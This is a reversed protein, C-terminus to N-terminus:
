PSSVASHSGSSASRERPKVPASKSSKAVRAAAVPAIVCNACSRTNLPMVGDAIFPSSRTLPIGHSDIPPMSLTFSSNRFTRM